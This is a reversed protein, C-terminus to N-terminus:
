PATASRFVGSPTGAFIYGSRSVALAEVRIDTLGTNLQTWTAGDDSSAVVGGGFGGAFVVGISNASLSTVPSTFSGNVQAWTIGDTSRFVGTSATGAFLHDNPAAALGYVPTNALGVQAWSAGSNTSRSIGGTPVEGAWFSVSMDGAYINGNSTLAFARPYCCDAYAWNAGNDASLFLGGNAGTPGSSAVLVSGSSTFAVGFAGPNGLVYGWTAGNDTSVYLGSPGGGFPGPLGIPGGGDSLGAYVFSTAPNIGVASAGSSSFGVLTWTAGADTSRYVGSATAAFVLGGPGTAISWVDGTGSLSQQWAISPPVAGPCKGAAGAAYIAQIEQSTLARNYISVEDAEGNLHAGELVYSGIRLDAAQTDLFNPLSSRADEQVGNVYIAFGAANKVAALHYWVGTQAVTTSFVTYAPDFCRNGTSGGGLCFWFRNDSQKLLRWGDTNVGSASMKDVISMDGAPGSNAGLPDSLANFFVWAEVTFDGSSVRLNPANGADVAGDFGNLLFAQGVKGPAFTVGGQLTGGNGGVVDNANGEGPWWSVLGQAPPVCARVTVSVPNSQVLSFGGTVFVSAVIQATGPTVGRILPSTTAGTQDTYTRNSALSIVQTGTPLATWLVAQNPVPYAYTNSYTVCVFRPPSFPGNYVYYCYNTPVVQYSVLLGSLTATQAVNITTPSPAGKVVTPTISLAYTSFHSIPVSVTNDVPNLTGGPVLEWGTADATYVRLATPPVGAPLQTPDFSLTLVVPTAFTTGAPGLTAPASWPGAGMPFSTATAVTLNTPAALAGAPVALAVHGDSTVINGGSTGIATPSGPAVVAVAGQEIRFQVPLTRGDVLGIDQGTQINKLQSGNSVVIVDAHGLELPGALVRLRYTKTPDLTCAGTLCQDTHWNVMYAQSSADYRVLESGTGTSMSFFAVITGCASSSGSTVWDCVIVVPSQAPDTTGSVSPAPVMPPLFLFHPNGGSHAADQIDLSPKPTNAELPLRRDTCSGGLLLVLSLAASRRLPILTM